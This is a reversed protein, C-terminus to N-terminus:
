RYEQVYPKNVEFNRFGFDGTKISNVKFVNYQDGPILPYFAVSFQFTNFVLNDNKILLGLGIQSYLRSNKFDSKENALMGISYILYPGFRFGLLDWPAYTQTQFKVLIRKTGSIEGDFGDIGVGDNITLSDTLFRNLGITIQPKIFQRIKWKGVELLETFFIFSMSAIGQELSSNRVFTGYEFNASLYGWSYYNGMSIRSGLYVRGLNDRIQYGGTLAYVKGIPVDETVGFTFVFKDQIYKRTNIAISGLYFLEDVYARSTDIVDPPKQIYHTRSFRVASIFNTTRNTESNGKFIQMSHGMWYDQANLKYNQKVYVSDNILFSDKRLQQTFIVGSAWRAFPSYFPRDVQVSKTFNRFEDTGYRLTSSVYSNRISPIYYSANYADEGRTHYWSYSNKFEHGVGLLNRENLQLTARSDSASFRPTISWRDLSRIYIDVSDSNKSVSSVFFLVDRIYGQSRVLRESEKVLLSDFVDNERIILLNRITIRQSKVHLGNGFKSLKNQSVFITDAVKYGFPDLTEISINRIIKGEYNSYPKQVSKKKSKKKVVKKPLDSTVPRFIIRYIFRTFKSKRSYKHIDKYFETSDTAPKAEQAWVDGMTYFTFLVLIILQRFM